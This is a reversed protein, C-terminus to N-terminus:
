QAAIRAILGSHSFPTVFYRTNSLNSLQSFYADKMQETRDPCLSNSELNEIDWADKAPELNEM